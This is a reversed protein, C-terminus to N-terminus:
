QWHLWCLRTAALGHGLAWHEQWFFLLLLVLARRTGTKAM